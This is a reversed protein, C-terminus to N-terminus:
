SKHQFQITRMLPGEDLQRVVKRSLTVSLQGETLADQALDVIPSLVSLYRRETVNLPIKVASTLAQTLELITATQEGLTRGLVHGVTKKRVEITAARTSATTEAGELRWLISPRVYDSPWKGCYVQWDESGLTNKTWSSLAALWADEQLDEPADGRKVSIVAFRLGRTLANREIDVKDSGINGEYQCTFSEMSDPDTIVQGDLAQIILSSLGDVESFEDQSVFPWIEFSTRYGTWDTDVTDAGQVLLVYPKDLGTATEHAEVVRGGILPVALTLKHRIGNRM